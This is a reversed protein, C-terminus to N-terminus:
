SQPADETRTAKPPTRPKREAKTGNPIARSRERTTQRRERYIRAGYGLAIFLAAFILPHFTAM